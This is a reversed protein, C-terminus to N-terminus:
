YISEEYSEKLGCLSRMFYIKLSEKYLLNLTIFRDFSYIKLIVKSLGSPILFKFSPTKLNKNVNSSDKSTLKSNIM